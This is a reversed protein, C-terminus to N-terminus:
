VREISIVLGVLIATLALWFDLFTLTALTYLESLVHKLLPFTYTAMYTLWAWSIISTLISSIVGIRLSFVAERPIPYRVMSIGMTFVLIVALVILIILAYNEGISAVASDLNRLLLLFGIISLPVSGVFALISMIRFAVDGSVM